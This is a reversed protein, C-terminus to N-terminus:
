GVFAGHYVETRYRLTVHGQDQHREFLTDLASAMAKHGPRGPEPAYSASLVRGVLGARDLRQAHPLRHFAGGNRGFLRRRTSDDAGHAGVNRYDKGHTALLREYESMFEDAGEDRVNWVLAVRGGPRLIRSLEVLTPDIEFWHFAQGSVALDISADPLGTAEARADHVRCRALALIRRGADRMEANPEIAEVTYHRQLFRETLKGTGFGLDAV